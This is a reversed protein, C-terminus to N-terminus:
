RDTAGNGIEVAVAVSDGAQLSLSCLGPNKTSNCAMGDAFMQASGAIIFAAVILLAAVLVIEIAKAM